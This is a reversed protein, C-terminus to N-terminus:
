SKAGNHLGKHIGRSDFAEDVAQKIQDLMADIAAPGTTLVNHKLVLTSAAALKAEHLNSIRRCRNGTRKAFGRFGPELPVRRRSCVTAIRDRAQELLDDGLSATVRWGLKYYSSQDPLGHPELPTLNSVGLDRWSKAIQEVGAGRARNASELFDLQPLLVACQLESLPFAHNGRDCFIRGRQALVPDRVCVAGGRGASLLKSGGFSFVSVDGWAGAPRGEIMAGPAQCVDEIVLMDRRRAAEVITQMPALDGHLHSVILAKMNKTDTQFIEEHCIRWRGPELDVLVPKAGVAEIARFNGPFDYAALAVEAGPGVGAARLALEVGFTGSCCLLVHEVHLWDRIREELRASHRGNYANWSGDSWASELAERVLPDHTKTDMLWPPQSENSTGVRDDSTGM